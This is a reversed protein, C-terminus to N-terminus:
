IFSLKLNSINRSRTNPKHIHKTRQLGAGADNSRRRTSRPKDSVRRGYNAIVTWTRPDGAWAQRGALWGARSALLLDWDPEARSALFIQKTKNEGCLRELAIPSAWNCLWSGQPINRGGWRGEKCCASILRSVSHSGCNAMDLLNMNPLVASMQNLKSVHVICDTRNSLPHM